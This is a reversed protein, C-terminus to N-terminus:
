KCNGDTRCQQWLDRLEALDAALQAISTQSTTVYTANIGTSSLSQVTASQITATQSALSSTKMEAAQVYGGNLVDHNNMDLATGMQNLEPEGAVAVRYLAGDSEEPSFPRWVALRLQTGSTFSQPLKSSLWATRTADPGQLTVYSLRSGPEIQWSQQWPMSVPQLYGTAILEDIGAPPRQEDIWFLELSAAIRRADEIWQLRLKRQAEAQWWQGAILMAGGLLAIAALLELLM